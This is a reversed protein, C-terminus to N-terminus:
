RTQKKAVEVEKPTCVSMSVEKLASVVVKVGMLEETKVAVEVENM